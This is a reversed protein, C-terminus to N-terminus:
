APFPGDLGPPPAGGQPRNLGPTLRMVPAILKDSKVRNCKVGCTPCPTFHHAPALNDVTDSGGQAIPVKHDAADAGKHGCLWCVGQGDRVVKANRERIARTHKRKPESM